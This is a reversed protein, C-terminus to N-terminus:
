GHTREVFRAAQERRGARANALREAIRAATERDTLSSLNVEVNAAAGDVAAIGLLAAVALDSAANPNTKGLAQEALDIVSASAEVLALPVLAAHITANQIAASRVSKEEDSARPLRYAAIVQDYAAADEDIGRQLRERLADAAAQMQRADAEYAAYRERGTTLHCVMSVLAAGLAGALASASGGGPTPDGSALRRLFEDVSLDALAGDAM